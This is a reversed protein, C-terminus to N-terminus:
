IGLKERVVEFPIGDQRELAALLRLRMPESRLLYATEKESLIERWLDIPVIVGTARGEQDTIYQIEEHTPMASDGLDGGVIIKASRNRAPCASCARAERRRRVHDELYVIYGPDPPQQRLEDVIPLFYHLSRIVIPPPQPGSAPVRRACGLLLAARVLEFSVGSRELALALARDARRPRPPTGPLRLYLALVKEAYTM